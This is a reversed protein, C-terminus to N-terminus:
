DAHGGGRSGVIEDGTIERLSPEGCSPCTPEGDVRLEDSDDYFGAYPTGCAQCLALAKRGM